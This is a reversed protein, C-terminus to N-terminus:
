MWRLVEVSRRTFSFLYIEVYYFVAFLRDHGPNGAASSPSGEVIKFPSKLVSPLPLSHNLRSTQVESYVAAFRGTTSNGASAGGNADISPSMIPLDEASVRRSRGQTESIKVSM